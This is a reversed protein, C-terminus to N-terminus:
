KLLSIFTHSFSLLFLIRFTEVKVAGRERLFQVIRLYYQVFQIVHYMSCTDGAHCHDESLGERGFKNGFAPNLQEACSFSIQIGFVSFHYKFKHLCFLFHLFILATLCAAATTAPGAGNLFIFNSFGM